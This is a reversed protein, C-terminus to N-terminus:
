VVQVGKKDTISTVKLVQVELASGELTALPRM